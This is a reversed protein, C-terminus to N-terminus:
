IPQMSPQFAKQASKQASTKKEEGVTGDDLFSSQAVVFVEECGVSCGDDDPDALSFNDSVEDVKGVAERVTSLSSLSELALLKVCNDFIVGDSVHSLIEAGRAVYRSRGAATSVDEDITSIMYDILSIENNDVFERLEDVTHLKRFSRRTETLKWLNVFTNSSKQKNCLTVPLQKLSTNPPVLLQKQLHKQYQNIASTSPRSTYFYSLHSLHLKPYICILCILM